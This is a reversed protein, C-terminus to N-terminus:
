LNGNHIPIPKWIRTSSTTPSHKSNNGRNFQTKLHIATEIVKVSLIGATNIDKTQNPLLSFRSYRSIRKETQDKAEHHHLVVLPLYRSNALFKSIRSRTIWLFIFDDNEAISQGSKTPQIPIPSSIKHHLEDNIPQLSVRTLHTLQM